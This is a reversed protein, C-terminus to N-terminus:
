QRCSANNTNPYPQKQLQQLQQMLASCMFLETMGALAPFWEELTLCHHRNRQGATKQASRLGTPDHGQRAPYEGRCALLKQSTGFTVLLVAAQSRRGQPSASDGPRPLTTHFESRERRDSCESLWVFDSTSASRAGELVPRRLRREIAASVLWLLVLLVLLM